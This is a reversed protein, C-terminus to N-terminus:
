HEHFNREILHVVRPFGSDLLSAGLLGALPVSDCADDGLPTLPTLNDTPLSM